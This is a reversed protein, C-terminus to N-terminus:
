TLFQKIVGTFRQVDFLNWDHVWDFYVSSGSDRVFNEKQISLTFVCSNTFDYIIAYGSIFVVYGYYM